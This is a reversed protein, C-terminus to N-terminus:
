LHQDYNIPGNAVKAPQNATPDPWQWGSSQFTTVICESNGPQPADEISGSISVASEDEDSLGSPAKVGAKTWYKKILEKTEQDLTDTVSIDETCSPMGHWSSEFDILKRRTDFETM